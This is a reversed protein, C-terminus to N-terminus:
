HNNTKDQRMIGINDFQEIKKELFSKMNNKFKNSSICLVALWRRHIEKYSDAARNLTVRILPLM